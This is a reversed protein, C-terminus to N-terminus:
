NKESWETMRNFAATDGVAFIIDQPRFVYDPKIIETVSGRNEIAVINLGFRGRLDVEVVTKGVMKEPVLLKSINVRESLHVFDLTKANELHHAVRVAMDREPFVVQAGLKALIEGHEASSAKAIVTPIGLSVLNLTTLISQDIQSSMCVVAIDCNRIGAEELSKKDLSKVVLANDTVERIERIKEENRDLVLLEADTQALELALATGFQGLGIIGYTTKAKKARKVTKSQNGKKAM